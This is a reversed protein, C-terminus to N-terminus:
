KITNYVSFDITYFYIFDAGNKTSIAENGNRQIQIRYKYNYGHKDNHLM